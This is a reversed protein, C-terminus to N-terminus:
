SVCEIEVVYERGSASYLKWFDPNPTGTTTLVITQGATLAGWVNPNGPGPEDEPGQPTLTVSAAGVTTCRFRRRAVM